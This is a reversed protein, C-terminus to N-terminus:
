ANKALKGSKKTLSAPFGKESVAVIRPPSAEYKKASASRIYISTSV